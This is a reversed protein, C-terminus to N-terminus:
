CFKGWKLRCRVGSTDNFDFNYTSEGQTTTPLLASSLPHSRPLSPSNLSSHIYPYQPTNYPTGPSHKTSPLWFSLQFNPHFIEISLQSNFPHTLSYMCQLLLNLPLQPNAPSHPSHLSSCLSRPPLYLVPCNPSAYIFTSLLLSIQTLMNYILFYPINHPNTPYHPNNTPLLYHATASLHTSIHPLIFFHLYKFLSIKPFHILIPLPQPTPSIVPCQVSENPFSSHTWKLQHLNKKRWKLWKASRNM